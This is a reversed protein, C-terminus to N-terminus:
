SRSRGEIAAQIRDFVEDTTGCGDIVALRNAAQYYDLLPQTQDRFSKLRARIISPADDARARGALREFLLEEPVRLELVLDLPTNREALFQDLSKAQGLTRPFGDFLYGNRCDPQALREGVLQLIIPDPVLEGAEMYRTAMQGIRTQEKRAARLMDGTSLHPVKLYQILRASQTGKGAGPPGVFVIRMKLSEPADASAPEGGLDCPRM